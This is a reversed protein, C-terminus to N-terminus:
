PAEKGGNRGEQIEQRRLERAVITMKRIKDAAADAFLLEGLAPDTSGEILPALHQQIDLCLAIITEFYKIKKDSRDSREESMM